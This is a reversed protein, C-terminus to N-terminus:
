PQFTLGLPKRNGSHIERAAIVTLAIFIVANATVHLGFDVFNHVMVGFIGTMAGLAAAGRFKEAHLIVRRASRMVILGFWVILGTGLLGGAALLELYDNHAAEPTWKGSADHFRTIAVSYAGLGSGALPHTKILQWTAAWVERRKVGAHPETSESKIEGPLASLRAVLLDGGLWLAGVAVVAVLLTSLALASVALRFSSRVVQNGASQKTARRWLLMTSLFVIQALSSLLGGRSSTLILGTWMLAVAAALLLVLERRVGGGVILGTILGIAMEMLFAFHNKNVFQAFGSDRRLYPLLFGSENHQLAQRAIGFTASVVAVCVIVCILAQLRSTTSLYRLLLAGNLCLALLKFFMLRTEFPDVSISGGSFAISQLLTFGLLAVVPGIFQKEKFHWTGSLLAQFIWLVTVAFVAGEYLSIWWPEVTGFPIVVLFTILMLSVFAFQDLVRLVRDGSARVPLSATRARLEGKTFALDSM